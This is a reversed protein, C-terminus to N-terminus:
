LEPGRPNQAVLAGKRFDDVHDTLGAEIAFKEGMLMIEESSLGALSVILLFIMEVSTRTRFDRMSIEPWMWSISERGIELEL